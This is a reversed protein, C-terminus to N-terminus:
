RVVKRSANYDVVIINGKMEAFPKGFCIIAEPDIKDLMYNYGQMFGTKNHRCGITGVAVICGKEIGDFCFDFSPHLSWCLSPIVIMGKSQWFAGCWRSKGISEIQQWMKMEAYCSFQPALVFRYQSLKELPREPYDYVSKFRYDDLFFHVGRHTNYIDNNKIDSYAILNLENLDLSQKKITNFNWKGLSPLGNRLIAYSNRYNKSKM